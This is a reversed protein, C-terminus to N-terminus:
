ATYRRLVLSANTGGFGFSNSLAVDIERQRAKHPVLDIATEREPNDLNLTPPAVNDRIALTAFIAEIAGAAGLLHGTASKTSSMSIKSAANGVLREVAGLEITDAMTSTGHANIYDVDAATLGARKLAMAMCRQAGDGDEAPATIHYADGSLGYGVIEAYIKAGRAKAHELEELVIIGAGEGMVFGDRDRDYPRSAKEPDDNHQTSLAKCAAFGALSIRSVPSETGGAVMVDADGLAIMRAADGIAHAGTSCATVVSHNPGRLKHRISVQGSVLNILRGPIFFPSIRRPGKDRLTYGAEVIGEIGGIGSGILVGTAIQDEDNEPHWGADNLAMDAAAMGYIIFPDVKRQEKPEMWDDQNFTGETGDGVPIRCAIKAPLDDVEFETVLRAGSRGALLRSWTVETGCGLPSVMGTGTIVVRRM